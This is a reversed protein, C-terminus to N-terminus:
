FNVLANLVYQTAVSNNNDSFANGPIFWNAAAKLQVDETYDYILRVGVEDGLKTNSTMSPLSTTGDGQNLSICTVGSCNGTDATPGLKKDLWIGIWDVEAHLDESFYAAQRVYYTHANSTNFIVNYISGGSQNEFFPDWATYHDDGTDTGAEAPNSDGSYFSYAFVTYAHMKALMEWPNQYVALFQGAMAERHVNDKGAFTTARNGRQLALETQVNLGKIPNTSLRVGPLYITDPKIGPGSSSVNGSSDWKSWFYGEVVTDMADGLKYNANAGLLDVDDKHPVLGGVTNEDVKSYVFDVTLPNYDFVMRVADLATRKSFDEAVGRLGGTSVSNNTGASDMIFSNGYAFNQRGVIVTLPSYLMERLTVYALNLDVDNVGGTASASDNDERDENWARENILGITTGVNDTLDADVRLRTITFFVDQRNQEESDQDDLDFASRHLAYNDIDGSMKVNQVSAFAPAVMLAAALVALAVAKKM